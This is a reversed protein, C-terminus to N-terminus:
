PTDYEEQGIAKPADEPWFSFLVKHFPNGVGHSLNHVPNWYEKAM